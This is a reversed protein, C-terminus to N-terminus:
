WSIANLEDETTAAAVMNQLDVLKISYNQYKRAIIGDAGIDVLSGDVCKYNPYSGDVLLTSNGEAVLQKITNLDILTEADVHFLGVGEILIDEKCENYCALQLEALKASKADESVPAAYILGGDPISNYLATDDAYYAVVRAEQGSTLEPQNDTSNIHNVEEDPLLGSVVSEFNDFKHLRVGGEVLDLQKVYRKLYKVLEQNSTNGELFDLVDDVSLGLRNMVWVMASRFRAVPERIFAHVDKGVISDVEELMNVAQVRRGNSATIGRQRAAIDGLTSSGNKAITLFYKDNIKLLKM